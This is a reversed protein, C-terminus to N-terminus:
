EQGSQEPERPAESSLGEVVSIQAASLGYLAFVLRDLEADTAAIQRELKEKQASSDVKSWQGYLALMAAAMGALKEHAAVQRPEGFDIQHIPIQRFDNPNINVNPFHCKYWFNILASNFLALVYWLSYPSGAIPVINALNHANYYGEEDLTAVLRRALSKNRMAHLLIKPGTFFREDRACWLWSGYNVYENGWKTLYRGINKGRLLRKWGAKKAYGTHESRSADAATKYLIIGQSSDTISGLPVSGVEITRFLEAQLPNVHVNITFATAEGLDAQALQFEEDWYGSAVRTKESRPNLKRVNILTSSAARPNSERTATLLVNDVTVGHFVGQPLDVIEQIRSGQVLQKRLSEYSRGMLFTNPLIYGLTGGPPSLLQLARIVFIQYLDYRKGLRGNKGYAATFYTRQDEPINEIQVYPPNGIVCEFGGDAIAEPFVAKWSMPNIRRIEEGDPALQGDFFTSEILSNGCKVNESLNPLVRDGFLKLQLSLTAENEGELAKLLLSLKSVEVAQPDIDVGFIHTTLLRKKEEITLQWRGTRPHRFVAKKRGEPGHEVYWALCHDMLFQYAGLLFSGSGCAMDLIRLRTKGKGGVLQGPSRSDLHPGVAKKVIYAVIYAPTYYVGGAKRVEPKEEVRAQHGATLRIVKGLFREYVTGLIEVPLVSFQYPSGYAFYLSQLIPKFVKDDVALKPTVRDPAEAIGTEKQFHFLGSNYKEDARRCVDRMFREYIEPQECLKLLQDSPELGRDEAMRLFVVRDITSQVAANLDESSLDSNRLAMNRALADRWGEIQNLFEVDVETTGRKRKAAVYQDFAGSWVSARSFIDWLEAWRDPYEAFRFYLLRAHSAKDNPKPPQSCDYVSLEEFDTLISVGLRGSWGYRRIQFASAQDM